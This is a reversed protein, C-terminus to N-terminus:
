RLRALVPVPAIAALSAVPISPLPTFPVFDGVNAVMATDADCSLGSLAVSVRQVITAKPQWVAYGDWGKSLSLWTLTALRAYFVAASCVAGSGYGIAKLRGLVAPSAANDTDIILPNAAPKVAPVPAPQQQMPQASTAAALIPKVSAMTASENGRSTLAILYNVSL